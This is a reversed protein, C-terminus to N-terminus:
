YLYRQAATLFDERPPLEGPKLSLLMLIVCRGQGSHLERLIIRRATPDRPHREINMADLYLSIDRSWVQRRADALVEAVLKLHAELVHDDTGLDHLQQTIRSLETRVTRLDPSPPELGWGGRELASLKGRLLDRQRTLDAREIKAETIRTLALALLQDFVWHKLNRRTEIEADSPDVLRHGAFSVTVQPVDRRAMGNVLERGLIHREEREAVLLATVESAYRGPGALFNRLATDRGLEEMMSEASAFVAALTPEDQYARRAAVLPAPLSDVLAVSHDIAEVVPELLRKRYGSLLRLRSDTGDVTREIAAQILSKPYRGRVDADGGFLSAFLTM